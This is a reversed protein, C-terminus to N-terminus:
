LVMDVDYKQEFCCFSKQRATNGQRSLFQTHKSCHLVSRKHDGILRHLSPPYHSKLKQKKKEKAQHHTLLWRNLVALQQSYHYNWCSFASWAKMVNSTHKRACQLLSGDFWWRCTIWIFTVQNPERCLQLTNQQVTCYRITLFCKVTKVYRLDPHGLKYRTDFM